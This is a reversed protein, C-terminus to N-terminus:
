NIKLKFAVRVFVPIIVEFSTCYLELQKLAVVTSRNLEKSANFVGFSQSGRLIESRINVRKPTLKVFHGYVSLCNTPLKGVVQKLLNTM